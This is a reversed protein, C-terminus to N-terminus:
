RHLQGREGAWALATLLSPSSLTDGSFRRRDADEHVRQALVTDVVTADATAGTGPEVAKTM